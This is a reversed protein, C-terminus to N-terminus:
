SNELNDEAHPITCDVSKSVAGFLISKKGLTSFQVECQNQSKAIEEQICKLYDDGLMTVRGSLVINSINLIEVVDRLKKGVLHATQNVYEYIVGKKQYEVVLDAVTFKRKLISKAYNKLSRLSAFEDLYAEQGHFTATMLGFEGAYGFDGGYFKGNFLLAGGIGNDIYVLMANQVEKLCGYKAEGLISLNIDNDMTVPVNFHNEFIQIISNKGRFLDIDFQKSLQLEGTISNVRGPVAIIIHRLPIDHYNEQLIQKIRLIIEYIIAIDYLDIEKQEEFIIEEKINSFSITYRNDSLSVVILIGYSENLSYYVQKRGKGSISISHSIKIIEDKTLGRLISSLAAHSLGLDHALETASYDKVRLRQIVLENNVARAYSQNQGTILKTM